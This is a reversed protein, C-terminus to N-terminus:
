EPFGDLIDQIWDFHMRRIRIFGFVSAGPRTLGLVMKMVDEDYEGKKMKAKICLVMGEPRYREVWEHVPRCVGVLNTLVDWRRSGNAGGCLHHPDSAPMLNRVMYSIAKGDPIEAVEPRGPFLHILECGTQAALYERRFTEDQWHRSNTKSVRRLRGTRKM